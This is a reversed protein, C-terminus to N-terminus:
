WKQKSFNVWRVYTLGVSNVLNMDKSLWKWFFEERSPM